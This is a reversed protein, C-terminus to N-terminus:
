AIEASLEPRQDTDPAPVGALDDDLVHSIQILAYSITL